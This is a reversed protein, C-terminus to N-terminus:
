YYYITAEYPFAERIYEHGRAIFVAGLNSCYHFSWPEIFEVTPPVRISVLSNCCQFATGGISIVTDPISYDGSKSPSCFIIRTMESNMLVGEVFVFNPNDSVDIVELYRCGNFPNVEMSNVSRPIKISSLRCCSFACNMITEVSDSIIVSNLETCNSFLNESISTVSNPIVVFALSNCSEFAKEGISVVSNPISISVLSSCNTFANEGIRMVSNPITISSLSECDDFAENGISEILSLLLVSELSNCFYFAANGISIVGYCVVVSKIQGRYEKIWPSLYGENWLEYAMMRCSEGRDTYNELPGKGKIIVMGKNANFSWEIEGDEIWDNANTMALYKKSIEKWLKERELDNLANIKIFRAVSSTNDLNLGGLDFERLISTYMLADVGICVIKTLDITKLMKCGYFAREMVELEGKITVSKMNVCEEFASKGVGIVSPPLVISKLRKCGFFAKDGIEVVGNPVKFRGSKSPPCAILLTEEKNFIVSDETTYEPNDVSIEIQDLKESNAFPNSGIAIVSAPISVRVLESLKEFVKEGILEIGDFIFISKLSYKFEEWPVGNGMDSISGGKIFLTKTEQDVGWEFEGAHQWNIGTMVVGLLRRSEEEDKEVMKGSKYIEALRATAEMEGSDSAMWLFRVRESDIEERETKAGIELAAKTNGLKAAKKLDRECGWGRIYCEALEKSAEEHGLGSAEKFMLFAERLNREVGQGDKLGMGRQYLRVARASPQNVLRRHLNGLEAYLYEGLLVSM